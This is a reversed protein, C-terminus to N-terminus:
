IRTTKKHINFPIQVSPKFENVVQIANIIKAREEM